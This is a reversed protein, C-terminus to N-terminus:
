RLLGISNLAQTGRYIAIVPVTGKFVKNEDPSYNLPFWAMLGRHYDGDGPLKYGFYDFMVEGPYQLTQGGTLAVSESALSPQITVWEFDHLKIDEIDDIRRILNNNIIMGPQQITTTTNQLVVVNTQHNPNSSEYQPKWARIDFIVINNVFDIKPIFNNGFRANFIIADRRTGLLNNFVRVVSDQYDYSSSLLTPPSTETDWDKVTDCLFYMADVGGPRISTIINNFFLQEGKVGAKPIIQGEVRNNYIWGKMWNLSMGANQGFVRLYGPNIINNHHIENLGLYACGVQIGDFGCNIFQSRFIVHDGIMQAYYQTGPIGSAENGTGAVDETFHGSYIGEGKSNSVKCHGVVVGMMRPDGVNRWTAPDDPEPNTKVMIGAFKIDDVELGIAHVHESFKEVKFGSTGPITDYIAPDRENSIKIGYDEVGNTPKGAVIVWECKQLEIGAFSRTVVEFKDQVDYDCMVVIPDEETGYLDYLRLERASGSLKIVHGAEILDTNLAGTQSPDTGVIMSGTRTISEGPRVHTDAPDCVINHTTKGATSPLITLFRREMKQIGGWRDSYVKLVVDYYGWESSITDWVFSVNKSSFRKILQGTKSKKVEWSFTEDGDLFRSIPANHYGEIDANLKVEQDTYAIQTESNFDIVPASPIQEIFIAPSKTVTTSIGDDNTVDLEVEYEGAADYLIDVVNETTPEILGGPTQIRWQYTDAYQSHNILSVTDGVFNIYRSLSFSVIPRATKVDFVLPITLTDTGQENSMEVYLDFEMGRHPFNFLVSRGVGGAPVSIWHIKGDILSDDLVGELVIVTENQDPDYYVLSRTYTGDNHTSDSITFEQVNSISNIHNGSITMITNPADLIIGVIDIPAFSQIVKWYIETPFNEAKSLLELPDLAPVILPDTIPSSPTHSHVTYPEEFREVIDLKIVPAAPTPPLADRTIAGIDPNAGFLNLNFDLIETLKYPDANDILDSLEMPSFDVDLMSVLPESREVYSNIDLGASQLAALTNFTQTLDDDGVMYIGIEASDDSGLNFVNNNSQFKVGIERDEMEARVIRSPEGDTDIEFYNNFIFVEKHKERVYICAEGQQLSHKVTNGIFSLTGIGQAQIMNSGGATATNNNEWINSHFVVHDASRETGPIFWHTRWQINRFINGYWLQYKGADYKGVQTAKPEDFTSNRIESHLVGRIRLLWRNEWTFVPFQSGYDFTCREIILNDGQGVDLCYETCETFICDYFELSNAIVAYFPSRSNSFKCNRFTINSAGKVSIRFSYPDTMGDAEFHFGEFVMNTSGDMNFCLGGMAGMTVYKGEAILDPHAKLTIVNGQTNERRSYWIAGHKQGETIGEIRIIITENQTQNENDNLATLITAYSKGDSERYINPETIEPDSEPVSSENADYDWCGSDQYFVQRYWNRIDHSSLNETKVRDRAPSNEDIAYWEEDEYDGDSFIPDAVVGEMEYGAIQADGLDNYTFSSGNTVGIDYLRLDANNGAQPTRYFVNYEFNQDSVVSGSTYRIRVFNRPPAINYDKHLAFINGLITVGPDVNILDVSAFTADAKYILTNQKLSVSHVHNDVVIQREDQNWIACNNVSIAMKDEVRIGRAFIGRLDQDWIKCQEVELLGTGRTNIGYRGGEISCGQFILHEIMAGDASVADDTSTSGIYKITCNIFSVLGTSYHSFNGGLSVVHGDSGFYCDEFVIDNAHEVRVRNRTTFNGTINKFTVNEVYAGVGSSKAGSINIATTNEAGNGQIIFDEILMNGFDDNTTLHTAIAIAQNASGVEITIEHGSAPRITLLHESYRKTLYSFGAITESVENDAEVEIIEAQSRPDPIANVAAQLTSYTGLVTTPYDEAAYRTVIAM